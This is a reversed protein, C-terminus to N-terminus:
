LCDGDEGAETETLDEMQRRFAGMLSIESASAVCQSRRSKFLKHGCGYLSPRVTCQTLNARWSAENGVGPKRKPLPLDRPVLALRPRANRRNLRIGSM